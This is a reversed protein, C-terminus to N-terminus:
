ILGPMDPDSSSPLQNIYEAFTGSIQVDDSMIPSGIPKFDGGVDGVQFSRSNDISENMAKSNSIAKAEVTIPRNAALKGLELIDSNHKKYLKKIEEEKDLIKISYEAELSKLEARYQAEILKFKEEYLQKAQSEILGKDAYPSVNLRVVFAGDPKKEIAAISLDEDQYKVQLEQLTPLFAKWDIGHEFVLDVTNAVIGVLSAFEGPKFNRKTDAPRRDPDPAEKTPLKLFIYDCKLQFLKTSSSIGWDEIYAGTLTAGTLNAGELLTQVLKARSLDANQLNARSLDSGIFSTDQLNADRLNIGRLNIRDFNKGQGEGTKVLERVQANSLYSNGPRALDLKQASRWYTRTLIAKRLDTSKLRAEEFDADTLDAGRFSTGGWAAFAIAINRILAYKENGKLAQWAIYVCLLTIAFAVAFAFAVAVDGAGAGAFAFALAVAVAAAGALAVAGVGAAAGAAAVSEDFSPSDFILSVFGSFFVSFFGSILALLWSAVVLLIAWRRQLGAKARCFKAGRLNAGTFNTSRIDANTFDAGALDKKSLNAGRLNPKIKPNEKKWENWTEVGQRLIALHRRNAM